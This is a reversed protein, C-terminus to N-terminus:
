ARGIKSKDVSIIKIKDLSKIDTKVVFEGTRSDVFYEMETTDNEIFFLRFPLSDPGSNNMLITYFGDIKRVGLIAYDTVPNEYIYSKLPRTIQKGSQDSLSKILVEPTLRQKSESLSKLAKEFNEEGVM